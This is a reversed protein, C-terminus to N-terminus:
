KQVRWSSCIAIPKLRDILRFFVSMLPYFYRETISFIKPQLPVYPIIKSPKQHANLPRNSRALDSM